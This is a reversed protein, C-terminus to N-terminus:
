CDALAGGAQSHRRRATWPSPQRGSELAIRVHIQRREIDTRQRHILRVDEADIVSMVRDIGQPPSDHSSRSYRVELGDLGTERRIFDIDVTDRLKRELDM